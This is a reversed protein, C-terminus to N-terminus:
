LKLLKRATEGLILKKDAANLFDYGEVKDCPREYGMDFCYDSGLMIRDAGVLKVLYEMVENSHSINDYYFRKLYADAGRGKSADLGGKSREWARTMRGFLIPYVGGAHPLVVELKPFRDLIGSYILRSAAIGTDVPNGITNVMFYKGLRGPEVVHVPHLFLPLGMAELREWLPYLSEDDIEKNKSIRTESYIGKLGPMNAIRDLEAIALDINDFPLTALVCLRDPYKQYAEFASDNHAEVLQQQLKAGAWLIMPMTMSIAHVDVGIRDMDEIRAEMHIFRDELASITPASKIVPRSPNSTDVMAGFESGYKEILRIYSEPYYHAHIDISSHAHHHM